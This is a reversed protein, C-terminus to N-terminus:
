AWSIKHLNFSCHFNILNLRVPGEEDAIWCSDYKPYRRSSLFLLLLVLCVITNWVAYIHPSHAHGSLADAGFWVIASVLATWVSADRSVYWAAISVPIFYFVFFNLEYGTLLDTLGNLIVAVLVVIKWVWTPLNKKVM